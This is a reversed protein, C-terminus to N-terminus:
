SIFKKVEAALYFSGAVVLPAKEENAACFSDAIMKEYDEGSSFKAGAKRFAEQARPLDAKKEGGPITLTIKDFERSLLAAIDEADKDAALAFLLHPKKEDVKEIASLSSLLCKTSNVTHAGDIVLYPIASYKPVSRVVEFRAPLFAAELGREIQEETVCPCATKIALAALAANEAQEYGLLSLHAVLPRAFLPSEIHAKMVPKGSETTEFASEIKAAKSVEILPAHREKAINRIVSLAEDKQASTVVPVGEKIIGCKEFAIKEITDGLYETHELELPTICCVEPSIVNTADLRGGLGVEFVSWDAGYEKFALFSFLTALEFWTIARKGPLEDDSVSRIARELELSAKKYVDDSLFDHASRVREAFDLLHPSTYLGTKFGAAALISSAFASVSGKGKSGAIHVCKASKEPNNLISCFFRVTDLWFINKQPHKEFNLYTDLWKEFDRISPFKSNM